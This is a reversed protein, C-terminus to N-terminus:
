IIELKDLRYGSRHEANLLLQVVAYATGIVEALDAKAPNPQAVDGLAPKTEDVEEVTLPAEKKQVPRHTIIEVAYSWWVLEEFCEKNFWQVGEHIHVQLYRKADDDKAWNQVLRNALLSPAEAGAWGAQGALLRLLPLNRAAAGAEVQMEKLAAVVQRGLLWEDIWVRSREASDKEGSLRGLPVCFLSGFLGGWV